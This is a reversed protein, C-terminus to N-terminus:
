AGGQLAGDIRRMLEEPLPGAAEAALCDRLEVRNKVGLVVTDVGPMTLAYRHALNAASVGLERAIARLPAAREFDAIGPHDEPLARDLADTLSGAAVARIGMVGIDNRAAAAIIERPRAVEDFRRMEGLADLPNTICQVVDPRPGHELVALIASPVGVATIGWTRIRGQERIREFAPAVATRFLDLPTNPRTAGPLDPGVQGHLIFLDVADLRMRALSEDLSASLRDYVEAAPPSGLVHKTTFMAGDPPSGAFAEGVVSEAEGRGYSPAMDFLTIGSEAAELVTDVAEDRTTSGWVAGIGGGGLALRSVPGLPGLNATNVPRLM